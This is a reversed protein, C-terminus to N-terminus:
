LTYIGMDESIIGMHTLAGKFDNPFLIGLVNTEIWTNLFAYMKVSTVIMQKVIWKLWTNIWLFNSANSAYVWRHFCLKSLYSHICANNSILFIVIKITLSFYLSLISILLNNYHDVFPVTKQYSWVNTYINLWKIFCKVKIQIFTKWVFCLSCM